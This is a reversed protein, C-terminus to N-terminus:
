VRISETHIRTCKKAIKNQQNKCLQFMNMDTAEAWYSVLDIANKDLLRAFYSMKQDCERWAKKLIYEKRERLLENCDCLCQLDVFIQVDSLIYVCEYWFDSSLIMREFFLRFYALYTSTSRHLISFLSSFFFDQLANARESM